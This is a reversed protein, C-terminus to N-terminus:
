GKKILKIYKLYQSIGCGLITLINLDKLISLENSFEKFMPIQVDPTARKCIGYQLKLIKPFFTKKLFQLERNLETKKYIECISLVSTKYDQIEKVSSKQHSISNQNYRYFYLKEKVVVTKPKKALVAFTYPFDECVIGKIFSLNKILEKKYFKTWVNYHIAFNEKHSGLFVPNNTIKIISKSFDIPKISLNDGYAEKSYDFSILDADHKKALTYCIEILQPHVWDDSDLFYIYEGQAQQIGTNRAVAQGQNEQSVIKIRQDKAAYENLIELSRDTAGDNVCVVEFDRFTQALVSDLCASLYKEVNYVPIIISIKPNM